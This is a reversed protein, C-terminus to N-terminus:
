EPIVTFAKWHTPDNAIEISGNPYVWAIQKLNGNPTTMQWGIAYMRIPKHGSALVGMIRSFLIWRRPELLKVGIVPLSSGPRPVLTIATARNLNESYTTMWKPTKGWEILVELTEGDQESQIVVNYDISPVAQQQRDWEKQLGNTM